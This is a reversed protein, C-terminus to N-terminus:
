GYCKRRIQSRIMPAYGSTVSVGRNVLIAKRGGHSVFDIRTHRGGHSIAIETGGAARVAAITDRLLKRM